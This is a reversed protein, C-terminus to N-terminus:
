RPYPGRVIKPLGLPLSRSPAPRPRLNAAMPPATRGIAEALDPEDRRDEINGSEPLNDYPSGRSQRMQREEDASFEVRGPMPTDPM